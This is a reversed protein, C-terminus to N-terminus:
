LVQPETGILTGALRIPTQFYLGLKFGARQSAHHFLMWNVFEKRPIRIIMLGVGIDM